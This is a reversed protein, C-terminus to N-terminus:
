VRASRQTRQARRSKKLSSCGFYWVSKPQCGIYRSPSRSNSTPSPNAQQAVLASCPVAAEFSVVLSRAGSRLCRKQGALQQHVRNARDLIEHALELHHHTSVALPAKEKLRLRMEGVPHWDGHWHVAPKVPRGRHSMWEEPEAGRQQREHHLKIIAHRLERARRAVRHRPLLSIVLKRLHRLLDLVGLNTM